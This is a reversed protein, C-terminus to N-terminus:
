VQKDSCGSVDLIVSIGFVDASPAYLSLGLYM